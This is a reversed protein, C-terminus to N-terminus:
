GVLVNDILQSIELDTQASVDMRVLFEINGKRGLLPCRIVGDRDRVRVM